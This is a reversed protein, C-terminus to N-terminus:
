NLKFNKQEIIQEYINPIDVFESYISKLTKDINKETKYDNIEINLSYIENIMKVLEYKSVIDPSFIHKVGNWYLNESIIKFLIKSLQLCTIGNWLHNSYGNIKGNENLKVWELLSRKNIIEEGIISTRIITCDCLEGLSKSIGYSDDATHKDNEDYNGKEGDFVCDTTVHIMKSNYKECISSLMIPFLSNIKYYNKEFLKNDKSSQPIIGACNIVITKNDINNNILLKELTIKNLNLLDYDMRSLEIVNINNKKMYKSVYSGLMGNSGFIIVKMKM